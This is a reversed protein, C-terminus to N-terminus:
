WLNASRGAGGIVMDVEGGMIYLYSDNLNSRNSSTLPGGILNYSYGGEYKVRRATNHTGGINVGLMFVLMLMM